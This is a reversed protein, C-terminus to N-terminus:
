QRVPGAYYHTDFLMHNFQFTYRRAHRDTVILDSWYSGSLCGHRNPYLLTTHSILEPSSASLLSRRSLRITTPSYLLCVPVLPALSSSSHSVVKAFSVWYKHRGNSIQRTSRLWM